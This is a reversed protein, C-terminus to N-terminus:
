GPGEGVAAGLDASLAELFARRHDEIFFHGGPIVRHRVHGDTVRDWARADDASVTPDDRGRYVVIDLDLRPGPGHDYRQCLELDARLTPVFLDLMEDDGLIEPPVGGLDGLAAVLDERPLDHSAVIDPDRGPAPRGSVFLHAPGDRGARKLGRAVEYAVLAGMSHGLLGFPGPPDPFAALLDDVLRDMDRHPTEDIRAERGPLHVLHLTVDDPLHPAWAAFRRTGGGAYPLVFLSLAEPDPESVPSIWASSAAPDQTVRGSGAPRDYPNRHSPATYGPDRRIGM